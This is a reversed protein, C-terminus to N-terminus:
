KRRTLPFFIKNLNREREERFRQNERAIRDIVKRREEEERKRQLFLDRAAKQNAQFIRIKDERLRVVPRDRNRLFRQQMQLNVRSKKRRLDEQQQQLLKIKNGKTM